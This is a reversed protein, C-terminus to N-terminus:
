DTRWWQWWPGSQMCYTYDDPDYGLCIAERTCYKRNAKTDKTEDHIRVTLLDLKEIETMSVWLDTHDTGSLINYTRSSADKARVISHTELEIFADIVCHEFPSEPTKNELNQLTKKALDSSSKDCGSNLTTILIVMGLLLVRNM